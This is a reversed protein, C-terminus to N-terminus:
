DGSAPCVMEELLQPRRSDLSDRVDSAVTAASRNCIGAGRGARRGDSIRLAGCRRRRARAAVHRGDVDPASRGAFRRARRSVDDHNVGLTVSRAASARGLLYIVLVAQRRAVLRGSGGPARQPEALTSPTRLQAAIDGVVVKIERARVVCCGRRRGGQDDIM